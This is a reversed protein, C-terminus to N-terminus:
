QRSVEGEAEKAASENRVEEGATDDQFFFVVSIDSLLYARSLCNYTVEDSSSDSSSDTISSVRERTRQRQLAKEKRRQLAKEKKSLAPGRNNGDMDLAKAEDRTLLRMNDSRSGLTFEAVRPTPRLTVNRAPPPPTSAAAAPSPGETAELSVRVGNIFMNVCASLSADASSETPFLPVYHNVHGPRVAM